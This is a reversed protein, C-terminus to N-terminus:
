ERRRGRRLLFMGGGLATSGAALLPGALELPFGGARPATTTTTTTAGTTTSSPVFRFPTPTALRVPTATAQAQAAPAPAQAAPAAPAPAQAAPAAAPAAAALVTITGKMWPHPTCAYAFTGPSSLTITKSQGPPLQGTDFSGDTATATHAITGSNTWTISQGANITVEPPTFGWSNIDSQSGETMQVTADALVTTALAFAGMLAAFLSFFLTFRLGQVSEM